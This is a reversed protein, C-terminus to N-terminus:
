YHTQDSCLQAPAYGPVVVCAFCAIYTELVFLFCRELQGQRRWYNLFSDSSIIEYM